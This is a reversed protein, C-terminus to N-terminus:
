YNELFNKLLHLGNFQSLEPHFQVGCINEIEFSAIFDDRYNCLSQNIDDESHM